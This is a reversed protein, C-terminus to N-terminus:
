IGWGNKSHGMVLTKGKALHAGLMNDGLLVEVDTEDGNFDMDFFLLAM